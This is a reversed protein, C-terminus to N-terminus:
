QAADIKYFRQPPPSRKFYKNFIKEYEFYDSGTTLEVVFGDLFQKWQLEGLKYAIAYNQYGSFLEPVLFMDPDQAAYWMGLPLDVEMGQVRKSKLALFQQDVTEFSAIKAKPVFRKVLDIQEPVTLTAITVSDKDVDSMHKIDADKRALVAMGSDVYPPTFAVRKLRNPLITTIMVIADVKDTQLASWRAELSILEFKVKNPDDFLAEAMLRSVDIDFGQLEGNEAKFGFPPNTSSTGIILYGRNLVDQLKDAKAPAMDAAILLIVGAAAPVFLQMLKHLRM